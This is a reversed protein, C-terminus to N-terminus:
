MKQANEKDETLRHNSRKIGNDAQITLFELLTQSYLFHGAGKSARWKRWVYSRYM